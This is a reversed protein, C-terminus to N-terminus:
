PRRQLEADAQRLGASQDSQGRRAPRAAAADLKALLDVFDDKDVASASSGLDAESAVPLTLTFTFTTGAGLTPSSRSRAAWRTSSASASRWDSGPAASAGASRPTPRPSIASCSASSSRRSASAPIASRANSRSRATRRTRPMADRDGRPGQRLVQDCQDDPQARGSPHPDPRRDAGGADRRRHQLAAAAGEQDREGRRHQHRQRDRRAALVAGGRVRDQRRRAQFCGPHREAARAPQQQIRPHDRRHSAPRRQPRHRAAGLVPRDRREDAHPDRPEDRRPLEVEGQQRGGRRARARPVAGGRRDGRAREAEARKM